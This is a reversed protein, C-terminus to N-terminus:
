DQQQTDAAGVATLVCECALHSALGALEGKVNQTAASKDFDDVASTECGRELTKIQKEPAASTESGGGPQKVGEKGGAAKIFM